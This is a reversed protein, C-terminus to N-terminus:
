TRRAMVERYFEVTQKAIATQTYYDLVRERGRLALLARMARDERLDALQQRLMSSSRERFLLGATGVVRPIEGSTSGIVPVGCAMAEILVRGFQEKWNPRTLSPLVLVDLERYRAPMETSSIRDYIEIRESLGAAEIARELQQRFPGSGYIKARWEGELGALAEILVLLGKEKVLRGAYGITFPRQPPEEETCPAPSFREADVGFQPVVRVPGKYGKARLVSVADANGALAGHVGAYVSKELWRFPPPYRRAINQWTFFISRAGIAESARLAQYTALNYPEEDIHVLDPRSARLLGRLGPYWHCHYAGNFAAPAVILEYGSVHARELEIRHRGERWYPPVIATLEIDDHAAIAELKTQYAGVVCAKSVITVRM